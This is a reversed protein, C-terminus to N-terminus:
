VILVDRHVDVRGIYSNRETFQGVLFASFVTGLAPTETAPDLAM